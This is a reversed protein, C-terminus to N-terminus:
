KKRRFQLDGRGEWVRRLINASKQSATTQVTDIRERIELEGLRKKLITGLAGDIIPVVTVKM